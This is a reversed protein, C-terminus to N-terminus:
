NIWKILLYQLFLKSKVGLFFLRQKLPIRKSQHLKEEVTHLISREFSSSGRLLLPFIREISSTGQFRLAHLGRM